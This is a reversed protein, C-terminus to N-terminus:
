LEQREERNLTILPCPERPDAHVGKSTVVCVKCCEVRINYPTALVQVKATCKSCMPQRCSKCARYLALLSPKRLCVSCATGRPVTKDPRLLNRAELKKLPNSSARDGELVLVTLRKAMACDLAKSVSMVIDAFVDYAVLAADVVNDHVFTMTKRMEATTKHHLGYLANEITGEIVGVGLVMPVLTEEPSVRKYVRLRDRNKVFSWRQSDLMENEQLRFALEKELTNAVVELTMHRYVKADSDSVQVTPVKSKPLPFTVIPAANPHKANSPMMRVPRKHYYM